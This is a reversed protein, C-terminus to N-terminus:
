LKERRYIVSIEKFNVPKHSDVNVPNTLCTNCPDETEKTSKYTCKKCYEDFRVFKNRSEM